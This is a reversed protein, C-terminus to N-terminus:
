ITSLRTLKALIVYITLALLLECAKVGSPVALLSKSVAPFRVLQFLRSSVAQQQQPLKSGSNAAASSAAATPPALEVLWTYIAEKYDKITEKCLPPWCQAFVRSAREPDLQTLLFHVIHEFGKSNPKIFMSSNFTFQKESREIAQMDFGLARLGQLVISTQLKIQRHQNLATGSGGQNNAAM